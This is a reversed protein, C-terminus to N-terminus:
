SRLTWSCISSKRFPHARVYHGSPLKKLYSRSNRYEVAKAYRAPQYDEQLLHHLGDKKLQKTEQISGSNDKTNLKKPSGMYQVKGYALAEGSSDNMDEYPISELKTKRNPQNKRM